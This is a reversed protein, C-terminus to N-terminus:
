KSARAREEIQGVHRETHASLIAFFDCLTMKFLKLFPNKVKVASLNKGKAMEHLEIIREQQDRWQSYIERTHKKTSPHLNKPAPANGSPGSVKHIMKGFLTHRVRSEDGMPATPLERELVEIYPANALTMHEFIQAPSWGGAPAENWQQPSLAAQAKEARALLEKNQAECNQILERCTM